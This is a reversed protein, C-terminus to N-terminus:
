EKSAVGLVEDIVHVVGNSALIDSKVLEAVRAGDGEIFFIQDEQSYAVFELGSLGKLKLDNSNRTLEQHLEVSDMSGELIHHRLVTKLTEMKAPDTMLTPDKLNTFAEDSPALVTYPGDGNLMEEYLGTSVLLSAMKKLDSTMSIKAFVSKAQEKQKEASAEVKSAEGVTTSAAGEIETVSDKTEENKCSIAFISLCLVFLLIPAKKM